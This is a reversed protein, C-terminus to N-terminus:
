RDRHENQVCVFLTCQIYLMNPKHNQVTTKNWILFFPPSREFLKILSLSIVNHSM